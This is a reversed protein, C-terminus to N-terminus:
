KQAAGGMEKKIAEVKKHNQYRSLAIAGITASIPTLSAVRIEAAAVWGPPGLFLCAGAM